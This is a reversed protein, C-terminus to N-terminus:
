ATSGRRCNISRARPRRRTHWAAGSCSRMASFTLGTVFAIKVIDIVSLGWASYIRLRIVGATFVTAGLNHGITCSTFSAFAAVRYPVADRGITRLAFFDYFSLAVYGIAVFVGAILVERISKSRLAAAVRDIEIDRLLQALTVAAIAVILLGIAIGIRNWDLRQRIARSIVRTVNPMPSRAILTPPEAFRALLRGDTQLVM